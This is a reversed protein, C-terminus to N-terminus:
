RQRCFGVVPAAYEPRAIVLDPICTDAQNYVLPAGDLRSAHLGAGLAV